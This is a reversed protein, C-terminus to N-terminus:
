QPINIAQTVTRVCCWPPGPQNCYDQCGVTRFQAVPRRTPHIEGTGTRERYRREQSRSLVKVQMLAGGRKAGCKAPLAPPCPPPYPPRVPPQFNPPHDACLHVADALLQLDPYGPLASVIQVPKPWYRCLQILKRKSWCSIVLFAALLSSVALPFDKAFATQRRAGSGPAQLRDRPKLGHPWHRICARQCAGSKWTGAVAAQKM